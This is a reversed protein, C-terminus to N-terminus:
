AAFALAKINLKNWQNLMQKTAPLRASKGDMPLIIEFIKGVWFM